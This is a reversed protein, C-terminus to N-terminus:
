SFPYISLTNLLTWFVLWTILFVGWGIRIGRMRDMNNSRSLIESIGLFLVVGASFSTLSDFGLYTQIYFTMFAVVAGSVLKIWWVREAANM